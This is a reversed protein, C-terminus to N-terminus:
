LWSFTKLINNCNTLTLQFQAKDDACTLIVATRDKLFVVQRMQKAKKPHFIDVVYGRANGQTFSRAGLIDFGYYSYDRIWKKAYFEVNTATALTETKVALFGNSIPSQYRISIEHNNKPDAKLDAAQLSWNTQGKTLKFGKLNYMFGKSPSVLASSGMAPVPSALSQVPLLCLLTLLNLVWYNRLHIAFSPQPMTQFKMVYAETLSAM